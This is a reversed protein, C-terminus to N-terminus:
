PPKRPARQRVHRAHVSCARGLAPVSVKIMSGVDGFGMETFRREIAAKGAAVMEERGGVERGVKKAADAAEQPPPPPPLVVCPAPLSLHSALSNTSTVGFRLVYGGGILRRCIATSCTGLPGRDCFWCVPSPPRRWYAMSLHRYLLHGTPRLRSVLLSALPTAAM